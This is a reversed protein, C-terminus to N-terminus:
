KLLEMKKVQSQQGVQLKYFYIGSSLSRANFNVRHVGATLSRDVVDYLKQGLANYISLVVHESQKLEFEITTSPNFPNPYNQKLTFKQSVQPAASDIGTIEDGTLIVFNSVRSSSFSVTNNVPDLIANTVEIWSNSHSDWYKASVSSEDINM